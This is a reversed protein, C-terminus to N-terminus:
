EMNEDNVLWGIEFVYNSQTSYKYNTDPCYQHNFFFCVYLCKELRLTQTHEGTNVIYKWQGSTARARQPRAYKVTSPCM